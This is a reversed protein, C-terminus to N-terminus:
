SGFVPTNGKYHQQFNNISTSVSGGSGKTMNSVVIAQLLDSFQERNKQEFKRIERALQYSFISYVAIVATAIATVSTTIIIAIEM